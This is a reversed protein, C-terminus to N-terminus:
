VLPNTGTESSDDLCVVDCVIEHLTCLKHARDKAQFIDKAYLNFIDYSNKHHNFIQIQYSLM